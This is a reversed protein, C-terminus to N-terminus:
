VTPWGLDTGLLSLLLIIIFDTKIKETIERTIRVYRYNLKHVVGNWCIPLSQSQSVIARRTKTGRGIALQLASELPIHYTM